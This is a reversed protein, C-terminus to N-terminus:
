QQVSSLQSVLGDAKSRSDSYGSVFDLACALSVPQVAPTLLGTSEDYTGLLFLTFDEPHKAWASKPESCGDQFARIATAENIYVQPMLFVASKADRVAFMKYPKM